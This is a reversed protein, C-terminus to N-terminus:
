KLTVVLAAVMMQLITLMVLPKRVQKNQVAMATPQTTKLMKDRANSKIQPTADTQNLVKPNHCVRTIIEM